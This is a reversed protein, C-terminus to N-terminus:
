RVIFQYPVLTLVREKSFLQIVPLVQMARHAMPSFQGIAKLNFTSLKNVSAGDGVPGFFQEFPSVPRPLELRDFKEDPKMGALKAAHLIADDLTGLEDILGVKLAQAGTYVRGRALKELAAQEMGRGAAAKKTFLDYTSHLMKTMAARESDSFTNLPSLLGSNKGRSVVSTTLGAKNFLGNFALKGGFVGISGTLTGPEAFIRKAGMSIYYGGSAAVDGMSVVFPKKVRDLARWMLDSALASGGPSDVRLVIAKVKPDRNAKEVAKIFSESGLVKSGMLDSKSKGSMIMGSAHIVAIRPLFSHAGRPEIGMLLNMMKVMGAFGSFDTDIKKKAYRKKLTVELGATSQVILDSIEDEYIVHDIMGAAKADPATLPATDIIEEVRKKDLKRSKSVMEVIQRFYDDLIAETVKRFEPSMESRTYPEAASKFEGVRLMEAKIDLLEFLNKYFTVEARVGLLMLSASEPMCIKDCSTALLYDKSNGTDFWAYVKKGKSKIKSIAQQFENLKGWGINPGNIKLVVGSLTEDDAAQALRRLGSALSEEIEGFLGPAQAGESYGGKIEIQAWTVKNAVPRQDQKAPAAAFCAQQLVTFALLAIITTQLNRM